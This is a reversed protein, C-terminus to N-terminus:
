ELRKIIHWGYKSWEPDHVAMGIGGVPLGFSVDGFSKVMRSRSYEEVSPDPEIEFNVMAYIGPHRDDTYERVLADFDEGSKAREFLELALKQAEDQTRTVNEDPIAGKFAILIHQVLVRDPQLLVEPTEAPVAPDERQEAPRCQVVTLALACVAAALAVQKM